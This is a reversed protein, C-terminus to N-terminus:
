RRQEYQDTPCDPGTSTETTSMEGLDCGALEHRYVTGPMCGQRERHMELAAPAGTMIKALCTDDIPHRGHPGRTMVVHRDPCDRPHMAIRTVRGADLAVEDVVLSRKKVDTPEDHWCAVVLTMGLAVVPVRRRSMLGM